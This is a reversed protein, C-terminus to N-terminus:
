FPIEEEDGPAGEGTFKTGDPLEINLKRPAPVKPSPDIHPPEKAAPSTRAAGAGAGKSAAPKEGAGAAGSAGESSPRSVEFDEAVWGCGHCVACDRDGPGKCNESRCVSRPRMARVEATASHVAQQLRQLIGGPFHIIELGSLAAHMARGNRDAIDIYDQVLKVDALWKPDAAKGHLAIPPAVSPKAAPRTRKQASRVAEETTGAARAVVERAKGEASKPRGVKRPEETQRASNGPMEVPLEGKLRQVRRAILADRDGHRRRINEEDEIDALEEPTGEVFRAQVKQSKNLLDAAMRDRGAILRNTTVDVTVPHLAIRKRSAALEIVDPRNMRARIDAADVVIAGIAISRYGHDVM